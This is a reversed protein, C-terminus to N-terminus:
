QAQFDFLSRVAPPMKTILQYTCVYHYINRALKGSVVESKACVQVEKILLWIRPNKCLLYKRLVIPAVVLIVGAM